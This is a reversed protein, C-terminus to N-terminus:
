RRAPIKALDQKVLQTYIKACEYSEQLDKLEIELRHLTQRIVERRGTSVDVPSADSM